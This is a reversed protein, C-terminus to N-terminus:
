EKTKEFSNLADFKAVVGCVNLDRYREVAADVRRSIDEDRADIDDQTPGDDDAMCNRSYDWNPHGRQSM